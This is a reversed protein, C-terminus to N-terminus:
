EGLWLRLKGEWAHLPGERVQCGTDVDAYYGHGKNRCDFSTRPIANLVPFDQGPTGGALSGARRVRSLSIAGEVVMHDLADEFGGEPFSPPPSDIGIDSIDQVDDSPHPFVLDAGAAACLPVLPLNNLTGTSLTFSALWLMTFVVVVDNECYLSDKRLIYYFLM